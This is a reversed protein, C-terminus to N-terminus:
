RSPRSGGLADRHRSSRRCAVNGRSRACSASQGGWAGLRGALTQAFALRVTGVRRRHDRVPRAGGAFRTRACGRRGRDARASRAARHGGGGSEGLASTDVRVVTSDVRTFRNAVMTGTTNASRVGVRNGTFTNDAVVYDRSRTDRHKPYGWDGPEIPNARYLGIGVGSNFEIVNNWIRLSDSRVLMLGEMGQEIRVDRIEGVRVDEFYAGAGFRLWERQENHHHSLWDVLSEHEIGSFLRPKWNHSFDDRALTLNHTGRALLGVKYGRVTANIVRVNRGGEISIGIGRAQDPDAAPDLGVLSAGAFDVTIDDGRITIVAKDLSSDAALRYTRPTVRV